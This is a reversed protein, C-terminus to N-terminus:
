NVIKSTVKIRGGVETAKTRAEPLTTFESHINSDVLVQYFTVRRAAPSAGPNQPARSGGCGCGITILRRKYGLVAEPGPSKRM